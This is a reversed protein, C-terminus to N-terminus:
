CRLRLNPCRTIMSAMMIIAKAQANHLSQEVAAVEAAEAAGELCTFVVFQPKAYHQSRSMYPHLRQL